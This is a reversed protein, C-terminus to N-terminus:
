VRVPGSREGRLAMAAREADALAEAVRDGEDALARGAATLELARGGGRRTRDVLSLGTEAELRTLHQSVASPSLYLARAAPLVGGARRVARLVLLRHADLPM